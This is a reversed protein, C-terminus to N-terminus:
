AAVNHPTTEVIRAPAPVPLNLPATYIDYAIEYQRELASDDMNEIDDMHAALDKYTYPYHQCFVTLIFAKKEKRTM